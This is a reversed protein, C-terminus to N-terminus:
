RYFDEWDRRDATSQHSPGSEAEADTTAQPLENEWAVRSYDAQRDRLVNVAQEVALQGNVKAAALASQQAALNAAVQDRVAQVQAILDPDAEALQAVVAQADATGGGADGTDEPRRGGASRSGCNITGRCIGRGAVSCLAGPRSGSESGSTARCRM